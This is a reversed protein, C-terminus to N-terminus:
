NLIIRSDELKSPIDLNKSERSRSNNNNNIINSTNINNNYCNSSNTKIM